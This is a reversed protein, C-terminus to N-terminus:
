KNGLNFTEELIRKKSSSKMKRQLRYKKTHDAINATSLIDSYIAPTENNEEYLEPMIKTLPKDVVFLLRDNSLLKRYEQITLNGYYKDLTYYPNPAPKINKTYNYIKSYINNLLAYREWMTSTDIAESKLYAVACEPSCFCGYVQIIGNRENKPIFIPPNAFGYNCWFCDSKKDLVDNNHLKFKLLRIKDWIKKVNVDQDGTCKNIMNNDHNDHNHSIYKKKSIPYETAFTEFAMTKNKSNGMQFSKIETDIGISPETKLDTTSCKLHLIINPIIKKNIKTPLDSKKIIKGGKPKRGRKKKVPEEQTKKKPKRGRRKKKDGDTMRTTKLYNFKFVKLISNLINIIANEVFPSM